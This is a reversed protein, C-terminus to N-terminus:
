HNAHILASIGDIVHKTFNQSQSIDGSERYLLSVTRTAGFIFDRLEEVHIDALLAGDAIAQNLRKEILNKIKSTAKKVACQVDKDLYPMQGMACTTLCGNAEKNNQLANLQSEFVGAFAKIMDKNELSKFHQMESQEVYSDLAKTFLASKSGFSNYLSSRNLGTRKEIDSLSAGHYGLKIFTEIVGKIANEEDFQPKGSMTELGKDSNM